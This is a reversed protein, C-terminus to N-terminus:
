DKKTKCTKVEVIAKKADIISFRRITVCENSTKESLNITENQKTDSFTIIINKVFFKENQIPKSNKIVNKLDLNNTLVRKKSESYNCAGLASNEENQNKVLSDAIFIAKEELEIQNLMNEENTLINSLYVIFIIVTILAIVFSIIADTTFIIGRQMKQNKKSNIKNTTNM